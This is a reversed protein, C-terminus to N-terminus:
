FASILGIARLMITYVDLLDIKGDPHAAGGSYPAVDAHVMDLPTPAVFGSAIQLAKLASGVYSASGPTLGDKTGMLISATIPPYTTGGGLNTDTFRIYVTKLGEGNTLTWSPNITVAAGATTDPSAFPGEWTLSDNSLAYSAIGSPDSANINLTVIPSPTWSAGGNIKASATLDITAMSWVDSKVTEQNGASDVAFYKINTSSGAATNIQIPTAYVLSATTPTTGDATYYITSAESATLTVSLNSGNTYSGPVPSPTTVPPTTDLTISATIPPYQVGTPLSKDRFRIYVTRPGDSGSALTWTKRTTYPEEIFPWTLIDNSFQMTDVGTPDYASLTLNVALSNTLTAGNNIQASAVLDPVHIYWTDSHVAEATNNADVAFYQINTTGTVVIPTTYIPSATTPLNGDITYFITAPPANTTTTLSVLVPSASYVAPVPSAITVPPQPPPNVAHSITSTAVPTQGPSTRAEVTITYTGVPTTDPLTWMKNTSYAQVEVGNLLFRYQYMVAPATTPTAGTGTAVFQVNTGVVHGIPKSDAITVGTAPTWAGTTVSKPGDLANTPAVANFAVVDYSYTTGPNVSTDAYIPPYGPLYSVEAIPTGDRLIRFSSPSTVPAGDNWQLIVQNINPNTYSTVYNTKGPVTAGGAFAGGIQGTAPTVPAVGGSVFYPAAAPLLSTKFIVPRMFDNEEHGLIHCHWVYEYGYDTFNPDNNAVTTVVGTVPTGTGGPINGFDTAIIRANPPLAPDILRISRPLPLGAAGPDTNSAAWAAPLTQAKPRMAVIIDELPNMRVTEKWGLENEDPPRIAGDWGVRNIIQVDFMHFHVPHTDVGNHTVKWIQPQGDTIVETAPEAYGMPITTQNFQNTFPLEIGLTANMRGYPDWLEQIAKPHFPITVPVTSQTYDSNLPKLTMAYDQIKAYQETPGYGGSAVPHTPQPVLPAPQSAKFAVPLATQLAALNFATAPATGAVRFQMVTRTNPGFGRLTSPAGGNVTQDTNGTFYDVRPDSAPIPAPADNYLIVTKGAFKSFDIIVDAREAPGLFLNKEQVNLVVIDRRNYNYNVPQNPHEVPFPLFGSESGIQIMNPGKTTPDPVGGDRGDTPWGAPFTPNPGAPVMKVEAGSPDNPDAYFLNLNLGRDNAANLIRFRYTKPEVSLYPYATGNVLMTDHFGEPTVSPEPLTSRDAAVSIPPWFWPGYDWRGFPNAGAPSTPDQNPEYVHPFWLDGYTGWNNAVGKSNKTWLADQIDINKPVFTKDQIILPIGYRYECVATLGGPCINPLTGADILGEETSDTLLLGAAEGAYVNLRTLGLSHDHYFMLRNSQQNTWFFTMEGDVGPKGPNPMDPVNYTSAGKRMAVPVSTEGVPATWQHPTGDSIWPSNGGHLHLTARNQTYSVNTLCNESINQTPNNPDPRLVSCPNGNVDLPGMGAGMISTDTPIFLNGAAGTPLLNRMKIRVPTNRKAIILPGLYHASINSFAPNLDKYGRLLTKKPLDSHMKEGYQVVGLEYYDGDNPVGVPLQAPTFKQAIPIYQGLNNKNAPGVGPLSDVFKRLATGSAGGSPSNAYYTGGGPGAQAQNIGWAMVAVTMLLQMMKWFLTKRKM